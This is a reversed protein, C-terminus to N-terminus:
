REQSLENSELDNAMAAKKALRREPKEKKKRQRNKKTAENATEGQLCM